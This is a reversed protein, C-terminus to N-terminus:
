IVSKPNELIRIESDSLELHESARKISPINLLFVVISFITSCVFIHEKTMIFAGISFLSVLMIFIWRITLIQKYQALKEKLGRKRKASKFNNRSVFFALSFCILMFMFNAAMYHLDYDDEREIDLAWITVCLLVLQLLFMSWYIINLRRFYGESSEM